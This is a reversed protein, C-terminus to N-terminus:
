PTEEWVVHRYLRRCAERLADIDEFISASLSQISYPKFQRGEWAFEKYKEHFSPADNGIKQVASATMWCKPGRGYDFAISLPREGVSPSYNLILLVPSELVPVQTLRWNFFQGLKEEMAASLQPGSGPLGQIETEDTVKEEYAPDAEPPDWTIEAQALCTKVAEVAEEAIKPPGAADEPKLLLDFSTAAVHTFRVVWGRDTKEIVWAPGDSEGAKEEVVVPAGPGEFKLTKAISTVEGKGVGKESRLIPGNDKNSLVIGWCQEGTNAVKTITLMSM